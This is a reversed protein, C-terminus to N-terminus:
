QELDRDYRVTVVQYGAHRLPSRVQRYQDQQQPQDHSSGDVNLFAVAYEELLRREVDNVSRVRKFETRRNEELGSPQNQFFM